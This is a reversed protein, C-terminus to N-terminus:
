AVRNLLAWTSPLTFKILHFTLREYQYTIPFAITNRRTFDCTLDSWRDKQNAPISQDAIAFWHTMRDCLGMADKGSFM